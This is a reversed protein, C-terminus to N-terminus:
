PALFETIAEFAAPNQQIFMHGGDFFSLESGQIRDALAKVVEPTAQGDHNGGCVLVPMNLQPLRDYTDHKARAALQRRAGEVKGPEDSAFSAAAMGNDFLERFQEPNDKQWQEDHRVDTISMRFKIKEELPMDQIEHLPFSSGGQGGSSTCVLVLKKVCDPHNIALEQAVMGGFSVGVVFCEDWGAARLLNYADDGYQRMTYDTAPKDTQGMGRQDFGLVEFCDPFSSTLVNPPRRLDGATGSIYLLRPGRGKIEYYVQIDGCDAYPM